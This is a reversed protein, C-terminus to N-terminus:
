TSEMDIFGRRRLAGGYGLGADTVSDFDRARPSPFSDGASLFDGAENPGYIDLHFIRSWAARARIGSM